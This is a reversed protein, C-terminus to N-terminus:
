EAHTQRGIVGDVELGHRHQFHRVAEVLDPGYTDTVPPPTPLDGLVHLLQGLGPVGDWREGPELKGHGPLPALVPLPVPGAAMARYDALAQRLRAYMPLPPAARDRLREVTGH